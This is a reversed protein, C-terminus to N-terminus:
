PISSSIRVLNRTLGNNGHEDNIVSGPIMIAPSCILSEIAGLSVALAFIKLNKLFEEVVKIDGKVYVSMMGGPGKTQSKALDYYEYSKLGPYIVKEIMDHKELFKAIKMANKQITDM